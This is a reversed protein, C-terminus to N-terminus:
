GIMLKYNDIVISVDDVIGINLGAKVAFADSPCKGGRSSFEPM